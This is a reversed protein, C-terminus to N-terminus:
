RLESVGQAVTIVPIGKSKVYDVVRAFKEPTISYQDGSDDVRHFSLTLWGKNSIASDIMSQIEEVSDSIEISPSPVLYPDTGPTAYTVQTTMAGSFGADKVAQVTESSNEGYPYSFTSASIGWSALDEKSGAIEDRQADSGQSTIHAHTRTHAGIEHGSSSLAQIESKSMFGTFGDDRTQRTTIYFTGKFGASDLIPVASDLQSSWGDDFRFTV